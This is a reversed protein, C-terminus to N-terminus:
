SSSAVRKEDTRDIQMSRDINKVRRIADNDNNYITPNRRENIRRTYDRDSRDDKYARRTTQKYRSNTHLSIYYFNM